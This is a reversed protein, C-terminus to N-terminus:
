PKINLAKLILDIKNEIRAIYPSTIQNSERMKPKPKPKRAQSYAKVDIMVRKALEYDIAGDYIWQWSSFDLHKVIGMQKIVTNYQNGIKHLSTLPHIGQGNDCCRKVDILYNLVKLERNM